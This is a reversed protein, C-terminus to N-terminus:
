FNNNSNFQSTFFGGYSELNDIIDDSANQKDIPLFSIGNEKKEENAREFVFDYQKPLNIYVADPKEYWYQKQNAQILNLAWKEFLRFNEYVYGEETQPTERLMYKPLKRPQKKPLTKITQTSGAMSNASASFVNESAEEENEAEADQSENEPEASAANEEANEDEAMAQGMQSANENGMMTLQKAKAKEKANLVLLEAQSHDFLMDEAAVRSREFISYGFPLFYYGCTHGHAVFSIRTYNPKIDMFLYSANALKSNFSQVANVTSSAAYTIAKPVMKCASCASYVSNMLSKQIMTVNFTTFQRNQTSIRNNIKLDAANKYLENIALNLSDTSKKHRLTPVSLTDTAIAYDPLVVVVGAEQATPNQAAYDSVIDQFTKIFQEDLVRGRCKKQEEKWSAQNGQTMSFFRVLSEETDITIVTSFNANTPKPM